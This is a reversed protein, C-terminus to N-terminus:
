FDGRQLRAYVALAEQRATFGPTDHDTGGYCSCRRDLHALSGLTQRVMCEKHAARIEWDTASLINPFTQPADDAATILEDCYLCPQGVASPRGPDDCAPGFASM